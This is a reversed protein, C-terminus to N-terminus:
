RRRRRAGMTLLSGAPLVKEPALSVPVAALTLSFVPPSLQSLELTGGDADALQRAIALGYGTSGGTSVGKHFIAEALEEKVGEGEDSVTVVVGRGSVYETQVLTTGAGYKLSNEILTALIQAVSAPTAFVPMDANDSLELRREAQAFSREWEERQQQFIPELSVVENAGGSAQRSQHLLDEVVETLRDVQELTVRAEEAVDESDTLYQIEELRMSMATLPTRLQHSADAAFQREASLRGAIRDASRRIEEYVLDIEEIGTPKVQPKSRASGLQEAAAALFVFPTSFKNYLWRALMIILVVIGLIGICAIAIYWARHSSAFGTLALIVLLAVICVCAVILAIAIRKAYSRM